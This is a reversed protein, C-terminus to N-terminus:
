KKKLKIKKCISISISIPIAYQINFQMPLVMTLIRFYRSPPHHDTATAKIQYITV